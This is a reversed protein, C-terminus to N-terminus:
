GVGPPPRLGRLHALAVELSDGLQKWQLEGDPNLEGFLASLIQACGNRPEARLADVEIILQPTTLGLYNLVLLAKLFDKRPSSCEAIVVGFLSRPVEAPLAAYRAAMAEEFDADGRNLFATLLCNGLRLTQYARELAILLETEQRWCGAHRLLMDAFWRASVEGTTLKGEFEVLIPKLWGRVQMQHTM